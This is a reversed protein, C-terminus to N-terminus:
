ILGLTKCPKIVEERKGRRKESKEKRKESKV